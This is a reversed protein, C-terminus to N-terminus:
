SGGSAQDPITFFFTTGEGPTSELWIRGGHREVIKKCVALGIGTGAYKDGGNLRQFIQFVRDAQAPAIGIGNDRVSLVYQGDRAQAAVEVAPSAGERRFKVANAILNQLLQLMQVKDAQVTPLEGRTVSAGSERVAALCNAAAEDFAQNLDVPGHEIAKTQVRSYHLLGEILLGMRQAGDCAFDIYEMAEADLVDTYRKALLTLFGRVMRLPEQLDHGAIYAFQELDSNSRALEDAAKQLAQQSQKRSTINNLAVVVHREGDISLPDASVELWLAVARGDLKVSAQAEVNHVAQGTELVQEFTRRILCEGCRAATGCGEVADLAHVCGIVEGPRKELLDAMERGVLSRVTDNVRKVTGDPGVLLLGVNVADFIAQLNQDRDLRLEADHGQTPLGM